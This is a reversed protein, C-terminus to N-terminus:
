DTQFYKFTVFLIVLRALRPGKGVVKLAQLIWFPWQPVGFLGISLHRGRPKQSSQDVKELNTKQDFCETKHSFYFISPFFSFTAVLTSRKHWFKRIQILFNIMLYKDLYNCSCLCVFGLHSHERKTMFESTEDQYNKTRVNKQCLPALKAKSPSM